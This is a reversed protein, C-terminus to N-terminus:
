EAHGDQSRHEMSTKQLVQLLADIEADYEKKGHRRYDNDIAPSVEGSARRVKLMVWGTDGPCDGLILVTTKTM